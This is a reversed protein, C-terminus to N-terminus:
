EQQNLSENDNFNFVNDMMTNIIIDNEVYDDSDADSPLLNMNQLVWVVNKKAEVTNNLRHQKLITECTSRFLM